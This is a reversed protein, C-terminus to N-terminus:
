NKYDNFAMVQDEPILFKVVATLGNWFSKKQTLSQVIGNHKKIKADYKNALSKSLEVEFLLYNVGNLTHVLKDEM